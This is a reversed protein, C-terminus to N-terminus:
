NEFGDNVGERGSFGMMDPDFSNIFKSLTKEDMDAVSKQLDKRTEDDMGITLESLIM